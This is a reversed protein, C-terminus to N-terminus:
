NALLLRCIPLRTLQETHKTPQHLIATIATIVDYNFRIGTGNGHIVNCRM